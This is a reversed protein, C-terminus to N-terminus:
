QKCNGFEVHSYFIFNNCYEKVFCPEAAETSVSLFWGKVEKTQKHGYFYNYGDNFSVHLSFSQVLKRLGFDQRCFPQYGGWPEKAPCSNFTTSKEWFFENKLCFPLHKTMNYNCLPCVSCHWSYAICTCNQNTRTQKKTALPSLFFCAIIGSFLSHFCASCLFSFIMQFFIIRTRYVSVLFVCILLALAFQPCLQLNEARLM